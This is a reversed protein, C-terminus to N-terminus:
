IQEYKYVASVGHGCEGTQHPKKAVSQKRACHTQRPGRTAHVM